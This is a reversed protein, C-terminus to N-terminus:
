RNKTVGRTILPLAVVDDKATRVQMEVFGRGFGLLDTDDVERGDSHLLAGLNLLHELHAKFEGKAEKASSVKAGNMQLALEGKGDEGV